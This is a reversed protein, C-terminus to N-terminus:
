LASCGDENPCALSEGREHRAKVGVVLVFSAKQEKTRKRSVEYCEDHLPIDKHKSSRM